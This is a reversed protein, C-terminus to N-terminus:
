VHARGIKFHTSIIKSCFVAYSIRVHSSKLRTSKRDGHDLLSGRTMGARLSLAPRRALQLPLFRDGLGAPPRLGRQAAPARTASIPLADHLSLTVIQQAATRANM